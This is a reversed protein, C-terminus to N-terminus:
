YILAIILQIRYSMQLVVTVYRCLQLMIVTVLMVVSLLMVVTVLIVVAVRDKSDTRHAAFLVAWAPTTCLETLNRYISLEFRKFLM